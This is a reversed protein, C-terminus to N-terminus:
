RFRWSRMVTEIFCSGAIGLGYRVTAVAQPSQGNVRRCMPFHVFTFRMGALSMPPMLSGDDMPRFKRGVRWMIKRCRCGSNGSEKWRSQGSISARPAPPATEVLLMSRDGAWSAPFLNRDQRSALREEKGTGDAFRWYIGHAPDRHSSFVIRKGDPTWLPLTAHTSEFTLRTMTKRILDWIWIDTNTLRDGISLALKTGDPSIRPDMYSDPPAQLPEEKGNRDVVCAHSSCCHRVIWTCLCADRIGFRCLGFVTPDASRM